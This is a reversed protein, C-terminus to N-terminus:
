RPSAALQAIQASADASPLACADDVELLRNLRGFAFWTAICTTLDALEDDSFHAHLRAWLEDDADTHSFAYTEALEIALRERESYGPWTRYETVHEYHEQSVVDPDDSWGPRDRAPRYRMCFACESILALRARAGELERPTLSSDFSYVARTLATKAEILASSGLGATVFVLPDQGDPVSLRAM